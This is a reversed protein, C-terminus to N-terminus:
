VKMFSTTLHEDFENGSSNVVEYDSFVNPAIELLKHYIALACLRIEPEAHHSCRMELFHRWARFNATVVIPAETENPLLSRAIQQVAKRKDARNLSSLRHAYKQELHEALHEYADAVKDIRMEFLHHMYLDNQFEPREVFRLHEAGVYRQSVQSFAFGARHRVLEHTLSRSIGILLFSASSHELVSGHAQAKINDLYRTGNANMTRNPGLSLYCMQGAFKILWEGDEMENMPDNTYDGFEPDMDGLAGRLEHQVGTTDLKTKALLIAVPDQLYKTGQVTQRVQSM